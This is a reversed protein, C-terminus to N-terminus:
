GGATNYFNYCPTAPSQRTRVQYLSQSVDQKETEAATKKVQVFNLHFGKKRQIDIHYLFL